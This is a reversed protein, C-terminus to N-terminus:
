RSKWTKIRSYEYVSYLRYMNPIKNNLKTM